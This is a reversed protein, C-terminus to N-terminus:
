NLIKIEIVSSDNIGILMLSEKKPPPPAFKELHPLFAKKQRPAAFYKQPTRM